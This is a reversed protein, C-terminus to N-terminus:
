VAYHAHAMELFPRIFEPATCKAHLAQINKETARGEESAMCRRFDGGRGLRISWLGKELIGVQCTTEYANGSLKKTTVVKLQRDHKADPASIQYQTRAVWKGWQDKEVSHKVPTENICAQAAMTKEQNM